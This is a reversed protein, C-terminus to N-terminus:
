RQFDGWSHVLGVGDVKSVQPGSSELENGPIVRRLGDSISLAEPRGEELETSGGYFWPLFYLHENPFTRKSLSSPGLM